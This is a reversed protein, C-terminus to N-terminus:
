PQLNVNFKPTKKEQQYEPIVALGENRPFYHASPILPQRKLPRTVTHFDQAQSKPMISVEYSGEDSSSSSDVKVSGTKDSVSVQKKEHEDKV